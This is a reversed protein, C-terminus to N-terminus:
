RAVVKSMNRDEGAPFVLAYGQELIQAEAHTLKVDDLPETTDMTVMLSWHEVRTGEPYAASGAPMVLFCNKFRGSNSTIYVDIQM